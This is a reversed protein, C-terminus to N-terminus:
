VVEMKTDIKLEKLRIQPGKVIIKRKNEDVYEFNIFITEAPLIRSIKEAWEIVVIGDGYFYEEYGLDEFESYDKIRYIDFHYLKCRGPYENILTFTPSTIRYKEDVGLGRAFVEPLVLKVPM